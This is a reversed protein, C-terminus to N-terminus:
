TREGATGSAGRIFPAKRELAFDDGNVFIFAGRRDLM